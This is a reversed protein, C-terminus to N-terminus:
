EASTTGLEVEIEPIEGMIVQLRKLADAQHALPGKVSIWFRDAVAGTPIEVVDIDDAADALLQEVEAADYGVSEVDALGIQRLLERVRATDDRGLQGLRNDGLMFADATEQDVDWLVTRIETLGARECALAVGHGAIIMSNERRALVPRPQGFRLISATLRDLQAEPHSRPNRPNPVLAAIPLNVEALTAATVPPKKRQRSTAM